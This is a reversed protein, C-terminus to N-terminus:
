KQEKHRPSLEFQTGLMFRDGPHYLRALSVVTNQDRTMRTLKLCPDGVKIALYDSLSNDAKVAEIQHEVASVPCLDTLYENATINTLDLSLYDHAILPNVYREEYQIAVDNEFHVVVSHYLKNDALEFLGAIAPEEIERLKIVDCRYRHNRAKIEDAINRLEIASSQAKAPTVFTGKGRVSYVLGEQELEKIARRATMRSVNLESVLENESLIREDEAWRNGRIESILYNKVQQYRREM